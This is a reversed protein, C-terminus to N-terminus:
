RCSAPGQRASYTAHPEKLGLGADRANMSCTLSDIARCMTPQHRDWRDVDGTRVDLLRATGRVTRLARAVPVERECEPCVPLDQHTLNDRVPVWWKGCVAQVAKGTFFAENLDRKRSYHLVTPPPTEVFEPKLASVPLDLVSILTARSVALQLKFTSAALSETMEEPVNLLAILDAVLDQTHVFYSEWNRIRVSVMDVELHAREVDWDEYPITEVEIQVELGDLRLTSRGGGAVSEKISALVQSLAQMKFVLRAEEAQQQQLILEDLSSPGLTGARRMGQLAAKVESHFHDHISVYVLWAYEGGAHM